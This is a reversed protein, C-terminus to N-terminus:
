GKLFGLKCWYQLWLQVDGASLPKVGRLTPSLKQALTTSLGIAPATSTAKSAKATFYSQLKIAPNASADPHEGLKSLWDDFGVLSVNLDSAM